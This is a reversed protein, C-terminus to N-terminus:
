VGEDRAGSCAPLQVDILDAAALCSEEGRPNGVSVCCQLLV